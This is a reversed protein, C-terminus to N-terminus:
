NISQNISGLSLRLGKIREFSYFGGGEGVGKDSGTM